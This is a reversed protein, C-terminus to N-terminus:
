FAWRWDILKIAFAFFIMKIISLILFYRLHGVRRTDCHYIIHGTFHILNDLFIRKSVKEDTESYLM